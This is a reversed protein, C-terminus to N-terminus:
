CRAAAQARAADGPSACTEGAAAIGRFTPRVRDCDERAAERIGMPIANGERGTAALIRGRRTM